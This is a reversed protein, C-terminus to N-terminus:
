RKRRKAARARAAYKGKRKRRVLHEGRSLSSGKKKTALYYVLGGGLLLVLWMPISSKQPAMPPIPAPVPKVTPPPKVWGAESRCASNIALIAQKFSTVPAGDSVGAAMVAKIENVLANYQPAAKPCYCTLGKNPGAPVVCGPKSAALYSDRAYEYVDKMTVVQDFPKAM